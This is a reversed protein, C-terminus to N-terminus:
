AKYKNVRIQPELAPNHTFEFWVKVLAMDKTQPGNKLEKTITQIDIIDDPDVNEAYDLSVWRKKFHSRTNRPTYTFSKREQTESDVEEQLELNSEETQEFQPKLKYTFTKELKPMGKKSKKKKKLRSKRKFSTNSPLRCTATKVQREFLGDEIMFLGHLVTFLASVSFNLNEQWEPNQLLLDGLEYSPNFSKPINISFSPLGNETIVMLMFGDKHEVEAMFHSTPIVDQFYNSNPIPQNELPIILIGSIRRPIYKDVGDFCTTNDSLNWANIDIFMPAEFDFTSMSNRMKFTSRIHSFMSNSFVTKIVTKQEVARRMGIYYHYLTTFEERHMPSLNKGLLAINIQGELMVNAYEQIPLSFLKAEKKLSLIMQNFNM